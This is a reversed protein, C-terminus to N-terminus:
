KAVIEIPVREEDACGSGVCQQFIEVGRSSVVKFRVKNLTCSLAQVYSGAPSEFLTLDYSSQYEDGDDNVATFPAEYMVKYRWSWDEFAAYERDIRVFSSNCAIREAPIAEIAVFVSVGGCAVFPIAFLFLVIVFRLVRKM